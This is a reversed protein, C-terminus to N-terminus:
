PTTVAIPNARSNNVNNSETVAESADAYALLYYSGAATGAPITVSTTGTSNQGAGLPTVNRSALLVSSSTWYTTTSLYFRTWTAVTAAATGQNATTDELSIPTGAVATPPTSLTAVVLDPLSVSVQITNARSNNGNNSEPVAEAADAYALLYYNGAATGAPITVSTTGTSNQEAGLPGVTRTGLLVSSGTWYPTPSLYIRTATSVTVSGGGQNATTETVSVAAGAVGSPPTTLASVVLDPAAGAAVQIPNARSNNGNNSELVAEAADAYVLLYYSGPATMAPITVSTTGTSSQGAGLPGVTRTGLAV